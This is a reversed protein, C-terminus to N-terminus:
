AKADEKNIFYNARFEADTCYQDGDRIFDSAISMLWLGIQERGRRTMKGPKRIMVQAAAIQALPKMAKIKLM